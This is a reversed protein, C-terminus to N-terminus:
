RKRDDLEEMIEQYYPRIDFNLLHLNYIAIIRTKKNQKYARVFVYNNDQSVLELIIGRKEFASQLRYYNWSLPQRKQFNAPLTNPNSVIYIKEM